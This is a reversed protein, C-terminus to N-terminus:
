TSTFLTVLKVTGPSYTAPCPQAIILTGDVDLLGWGVAPVDGKPVALVVDRDITFSVRDFGGQQYEFMLPVRENDLVEEQPGILCGYGVHRTM